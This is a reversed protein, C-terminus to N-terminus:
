DRAPFSLDRLGYLMVLYFIFIIICHCQSKQTYLEIFTLMHTSKPLWRGSYLDMVGILEKM